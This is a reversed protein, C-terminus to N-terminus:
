GVDAQGDCDRVSVGTTGQFLWGGTQEAGPLHIRELNAKQVDDLMVAHRRDAQLLNLTIDRLQLRSAHRVYIGWAPLTGFLMPEPYDRVLEPVTRRAADATGGGRSHLTINELLVDDVPHGPIGAIFIGHEPAVDHAVVQSITFRRATGLVPAGPSRLRGGLRIFIPANMVDRM